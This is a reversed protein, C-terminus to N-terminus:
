EPVLYGYKQLISAAAPSQLYEMFAMSERQRSSGSLAVAAQQVLPGDLVIYKSFREGTIVTSLATMGVDASGSYVFQNVQGISEGFVLKDKLMKDLGRQRLLELVARGYPATVPNAVAIRSIRSGTLSDLHLPVDARTTWVALQGYAYIIPEDVTLGATALEAPYREDASLFVDYPAGAKIQATLKGSSAFITETAIGTQATYGSTLEELAFRLNAAGAIILPRPENDGCSTFLLLLIFSFCNRLCVM